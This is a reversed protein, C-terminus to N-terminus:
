VATLYQSIKAMRPVCAHMIAQHSTLGLRYKTNQKKLLSGFHTCRTSLMQSACPPNGVGYVLVVIAARIYMTEMSSGHIVCNRRHNRQSYTPHVPAGGQEEQARALPTALNCCCRHCLVSTLQAAATPQDEQQILTDVREGASKKGVRM